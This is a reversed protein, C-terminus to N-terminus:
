SYTSVHLLNEKRFHKRCTQVPCIFQGDEIVVEMDGIFIREQVDHEPPTAVKARIPTIAPPPPASAAIPAPSDPATVVAPSSPTAVPSDEAKEISSYSPTVIQFCILNNDPLVIVSCGAPHWLVREGEDIL